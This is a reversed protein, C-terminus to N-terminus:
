LNAELWVKDPKELFKNKLITAITPQWLDVDASVFVSNKPMGYDYLRQALKKLRRNLYVINRTELFKFEIVPYLDNLTVSVADDSYHPTMGSSQPYLMGYERKDKLDCIKNIHHDYVSFQGVHLNCFADFAFIHRFKANEWQRYPNVYFGISRMVEGPSYYWDYIKRFASV